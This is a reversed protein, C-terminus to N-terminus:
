VIVYNHKPATKVQIIAFNFDMGMVPLPKYEFPKQIMSINFRHADRLQYRSQTGAVIELEDAQYIGTVRVICVAATLLHKRTIFVAGCIHGKGFPEDLRKLRLSAVFKANESVTARTELTEEYDDLGEHASLFNVLCFVFFVSFLKM